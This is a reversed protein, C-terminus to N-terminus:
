QHIINISPSTNIQISLISTTAENAITNSKEDGLIEIYFTVWMFGIPNKIESLLTQKHQVLENKPYPNSISM